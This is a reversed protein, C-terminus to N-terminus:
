KSDTFVNTTTSPLGALHLQVMVYPKKKKKIKGAPDRDFFYTNNNPRFPSQPLLM